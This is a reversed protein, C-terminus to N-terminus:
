LDGALKTEVHFNTMLIYLSHPSSSGQSYSAKISSPRWFEPSHLVCRIGTSPTRIGAAGLVGGKLSLELCWGTWLPYGATQCCSLLQYIWFRAFYLYM